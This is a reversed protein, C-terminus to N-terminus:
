EVQFTKELLVPAEGEPAVEVTLRYEGAALPEELPLTFRGSCFAGLELGGDGRLGQATEMELWGEGTWRFLSAEPELGVALPASTRNRVAYALERSAAGASEGEVTLGYPALLRAGGQIVLVLLVLVLPALWGRRKEVM